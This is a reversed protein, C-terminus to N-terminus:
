PNCTNKEGDTGREPLTRIHTDTQRDKEKDIGNQERNNSLVISCPVTATLLLPPFYTPNLLLLLAHVIDFLGFTEPVCFEVRHMCVCVPVLGVALFFCVFRVSFIFHLVFYLFQM